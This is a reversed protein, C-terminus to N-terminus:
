AANANKERRREERRVKREAEEKLKKPKMVRTYYFYSTVGIITLLTLTVIPLPLETEPM